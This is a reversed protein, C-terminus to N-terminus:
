YCWLRQQMYAWLKQYILKATTKTFIGNSVTSWHHKQHLSKFHDMKINYVKRNSGILNSKKQLKSCNPSIEKTIGSNTVHIQLFILRINSWHFNIVRIMVEICLILYITFSIRTSQFISDATLKFVTSISLLETHVLNVTTSQCQQNTVHLADPM